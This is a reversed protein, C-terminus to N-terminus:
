FSSASDSPFHPFCPPPHQWPQCYFLTDWATQGKSYLSFNTITKSQHKGAFTSQRWPSEHVRVLVSKQYSLDIQRWMPSLHCHVNWTNGWPWRHLGVTHVEGPDGTCDWLIDHPPLNLGGKIRRKQMLLIPDNCSWIINVHSSMGRRYSVKFDRSSCRCPLPHTTVRCFIWSGTIVIFNRSTVHTPLICM